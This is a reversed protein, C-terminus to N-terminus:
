QTVHSVRFAPLRNLLAAVEYRRPRALNGCFERALANLGENSLDRDVLDLIEKLSYGEDMYRLKAYYIILGISRIQDESVIQSFHNMDIISRGFQLLGDDDVNIFVDKHKISPDISSPMIWRSRTFLGTLSINTGTVPPQVNISKADETIDTVLLGEIKLIRDAIPIYEAILNSGSVIISLGLEDIMQRARSALPSYKSKVLIESTRSDSSLFSPCSTAEDFLLVRAGAELAEVTSAAQSEFASAFETSFNSKDDDNYFASIDVNQISRGQEEIIEVTDSATVCHERGDGLIHNYIGQAITDVLEIRGENDEGIILTLGNSIGLGNVSGFYPTNVEEQINDEIKICANAKLNNDDEQNSGGLIANNAIFAVQGSANLHQRLQDADEMNNVFAEALGNDMSCYLLSNGVSEILDEFFLSQARAGDIVWQLENEIIIKQIPLEITIRLELYEQNIFLANRPLISQNPSSLNISKLAVGEFNFETLGAITNNFRRLLFDELATKRIPNDFLSHPIEAITQPIRISFVPELNDFSPTFPYCKAVCRTFDYDGILQEYQSIPQGDIEELLRFFERKDKM